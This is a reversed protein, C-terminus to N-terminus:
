TFSNWFASHDSVQFLMLNLFYLWERIVQFFFRWLWLIESFFILFYVKGFWTREWLEVLGHPCPFFNFIFNLKVLLNHLTGM